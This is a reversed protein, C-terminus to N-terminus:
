IFHWLGLATAFLIVVLTRDWLGLCACDIHLDFSGFIAFGGM